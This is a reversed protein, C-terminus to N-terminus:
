SALLPGSFRIFLAPQGRDIVCDRLPRGIVGPMGGEANVRVRRFRIVGVNLEVYKGWISAEVLVFV